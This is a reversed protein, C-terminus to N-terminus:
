YGMAEAYYDRQHSELEDWRHVGCMVQWAPAVLEVFHDLRGDCDSGSSYVSLYVLGEDPRWTYTHSCYSYGEETPGGSHVELPVGPKLALRVDGGNACGFLPRSGYCSHDPGRGRHWHTLRLTERPYKM